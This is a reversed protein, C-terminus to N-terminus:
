PHEHFLGRDTARLFGPILSVERWFRYTEASIRHSCLPTHGTSCDTMGDPRRDVLAAKLFLQLHSIRQRRTFGSAQSSELIMVAAEQDDLGRPVLRLAPVMILSLTKLWRVQTFAVNFTWAMYGLYIALGIGLNGTLVFFVSIYGIVTPRALASPQYRAAYWNMVTAGIRGEPTDPMGNLQDQNM